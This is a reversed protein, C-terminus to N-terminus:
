PSLGQVFLCGRECLGPVAEAMAEFLVFESEPHLGQLRLLENEAKGKHAHVFRPRAFPSIIWGGNCECAQDMDVILWAKESM